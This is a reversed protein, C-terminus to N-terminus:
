RRTLLESPVAMSYPILAKHCVEFFAPAVFGLALTGILAISVALGAYSVQVRFGPNVRLAEVEPSADDVVMTKLINLYYALSVVSTLLAAAILWIGGGGALAVTQFLFFKAFFGATIPMGALSLLFLSFALVFLPKKRVLGGLASIEDTGLWQGAMLTCAFAGLNMFVYAFLYFWLAALADGTLVVLGLLVYGAHAITSYALLRKLNKQGLAAFNGWVMSALSLMAMLYFLPKGLGALPMLSFLRLALSFGALKSVISLFATVPTPSGEYVDPAWIHFPAASLKFGIGATLLVLVMPAAFKLSPAAVALAGPLAPLYTSGGMMGYLLSLGFLFVASSAAGYILYKLSAEASRQDGRLLGSMVYSAIGLTELSVFIMVLDVAGVLSLAGLLATLLLVYFEATTEPAREEVYRKSMLLLIIFGSLIFARAVTAFLDAQFMNFLVGYVTDPYPLFRTSLQTLLFGLALVSGGLSIAWSFRQDALGKCMALFLCTILTLGIAIEPTIYPVNQAVLFQFGASQSLWTLSESPFIALLSQM